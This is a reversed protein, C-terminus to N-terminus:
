QAPLLVLGVWVGFVVNAAILALPTALGYARGAVGPPVKTGDRVGRDALAFVPLLLVVLIGQALGLLAGWGVFTASDIQLFVLRYGLAVVAGLVLQVIAGYVYVVPGREASVINGEFRLLDLRTLRMGVFGAYVAILAIAGAIGGWLAAAM